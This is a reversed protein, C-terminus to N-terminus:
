SPVPSVVIPRGPQQQPPMMVYSPPAGPYGYVPSIPPSPYPVPPVPQSYMIHQPPPQYRPGHSYTRQRSKVNRYAPTGYYSSPMARQPSVMPPPPPPHNWPLQSQPFSGGLHGPASRMPMPGPHHPGDSYEYEYEDSSCSDVSPSRSRFHHSRRRQLRRGPRRPDTDDHQPMYDSPPALANAFQPRCNETKDVWTAIRRQTNLYREYAEPSYDYETM